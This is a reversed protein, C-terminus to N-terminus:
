VSRRAHVKTDAASGITLFVCHPGLSLWDPQNLTNRFERPFGGSLALCGCLWCPLGVWGLEVVWIGSLGLRAKAILLYIYSRLPSALYPPGLRDIAVM